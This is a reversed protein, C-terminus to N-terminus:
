TRSWTHAGGQRLLRARSAWTHNGGQRPKTNAKTCHAHPGNLAPTDLHPRAEKSGVHNPSVINQKGSVHRQWTSPANSM